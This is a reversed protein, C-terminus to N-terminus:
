NGAPAEAPARSAAPAGYAEEQSIDQNTYDPLFLTATISVVACIAIYIAVSYGSGTSALLATAILPAPGGAIISALHFGLSAGSYRLRPSFCEAILAGQPGYMMDHPILSVVIALFIWGPVATNLMAFYVFGWIGVAVAGILYLRKRGIRDSIFGSLPMTITSVATAVLVATLLLERSSHLVTTGYTFVFAVFIYFPAQQGL